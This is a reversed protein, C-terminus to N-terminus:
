DDVQEKIQKQLDKLCDKCLTFMLPFSAYDTRMIISYCNLLSMCSNCQARPNSKESILKIM